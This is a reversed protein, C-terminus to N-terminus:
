LKTDQRGSDSSRRAPGLLGGGGASGAAGSGAGAGAGAGRSPGAPTAGATGRGGGAGGGQAFRANASMLWHMQMRIAGIAANTHAMDEKARLGENLIMVTTRAELDALAAQQRALEERLSEHLSLLHQTPADVFSPLSPSNPQPNPALAPSAHASANPSVSTSTSPQHPTSAAASVSNSPAPSAVANDLPQFSAAVGPSTAPNIRSSQPGQQHHQSQQDSSYLVGQMATFGGELIKVKRRLLENATRQEDALQKQEVLFPTMIAIQCTKSHEVVERRTAYFTCGYAKGPCNTPGVPCTTSVHATLGRKLVSESCHPCHEFRNPCSSNHHDDLDRKLMGEGCDECKVGYHLCGRHFDKQLVELRCEPVPCEVITYDCYLDIHHQVEGRKGEWACGANGNPCKVVLEDLM